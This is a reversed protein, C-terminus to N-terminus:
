GCILLSRVQYQRWGKGQESIVGSYTDNMTAILLNLLLIISILGYIFILFETVFSKYKDIEFLYGVNQINKLDTDMGATMIVLELVVYPVSNFFFRFAVSGYESDSVTEESLLQFQLQIACGFAITLILYFILFPVMNKVIIYKMASMFTYIPNYARAILLVIIWGSLIAVGKVWTYYEVTIGDIQYSLILTFISASIFITMVIRTIHEALFAVMYTISNLLAGEAEVYSSFKARDKYIAVEGQRITYIEWYLFLVLPITVLLVAYIMILLDASGTNIHDGNYLSFNAGHLSTATEGTYWVMISMHLVLFVIIFIQYVYWQYKALLEMPFRELEDSVKVPPNIKSLTQLFDQPRKGITRGEETLDVFPSKRKFLSSSERQKVRQGNGEDNKQRSMKGFLWPFKGTIGDQTQEGSRRMPFSQSRQTEGITNMTGEKEKLVKMLVDRLAEFRRSAVEVQIQCQYEPMLNSVEIKYEPKEKQETEEQVDKPYYGVQDHQLQNVKRERKIRNVINQFWRVAKNDGTRPEEDEMKSHGPYKHAMGAITSVQSEQGSQHNESRDVNKDETKVTIEDEDDDQKDKGKDPEIQFVFVDRQTLMVHVCETLGLTAAYELVSLGAENTTESRLSYMADQRMDIYRQSDEDPVPVKLRKCWWLVCVDVMTKWVEYFFETIDEDNEHAELDILQLLDHLPTHGDEDRAALDGGMEVLQTILERSGKKAAIHMATETESTEENVDIDRHQLSEFFVKLTELKQQKVALHFATHGAKNWKKEDVPKTALYRILNNRGYKTALHLLTNRERDVSQCLTHMQHYKLKEMMKVLEEDNMDSKVAISLFTNQAKNRALLTNNWWEFPHGHYNNFRDTLQHFIDTRKNKIAIHLLTDGNRDVRKELDTYYVQPLLWLINKGDKAGETSACYHFLTNGKFNKVGKLYKQAERHRLVYKWFSSQKEAVEGNKIETAM